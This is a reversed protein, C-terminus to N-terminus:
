CQAKWLFFWRYRYLWIPMFLNSIIFSLESFGISNWLWDDPPVIHCIWVYMNCRFRIVTWHSSHRTLSKLRRYRPFLDSVACLEIWPLYTILLPRRLECFLLYSVCAADLIYCCCQLLLSRVVNLSQLWSTASLLAHLRDIFLLWVRVSSGLRCRLPRKDAASSYLLCHYRQDTFSICCCVGSLAPRM